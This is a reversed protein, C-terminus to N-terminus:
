KATYEMMYMGQKEYSLAICVYKHKSVISAPNYTSDTFSYILYKNFGSRVYLAFTAPVINNQFSTTWDSNLSNVFTEYSQPNTFRAVSEVNRYFSDSTTQNKVDYEMSVIKLDNSFDISLKESLENWHKTSTDYQPKFVLTFSGYIFLLVSFISGIVINSVAKYKKISLFIGYGLCGLSIPLLLYFVWLNSITYYMRDFSFIGENKSDLFAVIMLAIFLTSCTLVISIIKIVKFAGSTKQKSM